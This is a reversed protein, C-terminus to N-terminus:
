GGDAEVREKMADLSDRPYRDADNPNVLLVRVGKDAYDRAM